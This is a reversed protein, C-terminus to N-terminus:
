VAQLKNRLSEKARSILTRCNSNTINLIQSIEEYDYGEILHLTLVTSYSDKLQKLMHLVTKAKTDTIDEQISSETDTLAYEITEIAVEKKISQKRYVNLSANITIKKLWSGFMKDDKLSSLKTFATLFAEQMIDEAEATDKLIRYAANYMTKYYRNYIELQANQDSNRCKEILQEIHLTTLTLFYIIRKYLYLHIEKTVTKCKNKKFYPM